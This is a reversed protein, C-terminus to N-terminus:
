FKYSTPSVEWAVSLNANNYIYIDRKKHTHTHSHARASPYLMKFLGSKSMASHYSQEGVEWVPYVITCSIYFIRASNSIFIRTFTSISLSNTPGLVLLILDKSEDKAWWRLCIDRWWESQQLCTRALFFSTIYPSIQYYLFNKHNNLKVTM